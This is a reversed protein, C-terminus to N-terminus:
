AAGYREVLSPSGAIYGDLIREAVNVSPVLPHLALAKIAQPIDVGQWFLHSPDFNVGITDGAAKRLKLATEVNYVVFGPHPEIAVRIGHSRAFEAAEVWYPLVRAEWQWALTEPFDDPWSCTVM